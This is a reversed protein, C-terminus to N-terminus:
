GSYQLLFFIALDLDTNNKQLLDKIVSEEIPLAEKVNDIIWQPICYNDKEKSSPKSLTTKVNDKVDPEEDQGAVERQESAM